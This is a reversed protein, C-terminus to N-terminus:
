RFNFIICFFMFCQGRVNELDVIEDVASKVGFQLATGFNMKRTSGYYMDIVIGITYDRPCQVPM